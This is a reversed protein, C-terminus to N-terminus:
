DHDQLHSLVALINAEEKIWTGWPIDGLEENFTSKFDRIVRHYTTKPVGYEFEINLSTPLVLKKSEDCGRTWAYPMNPNTLATFIAQRLEFETYMKENPTFKAACQDSALCFAARTLKKSVDQDHEWGPKYDMLKQFCSRAAKKLSYFHNKEKQTYNQPCTILSGKKVSRVLLNTLDEVRQKKRNDYEDM